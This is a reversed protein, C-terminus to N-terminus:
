RWRAAEDDRGWGDYLSALLMAARRTASADPGLAAACREHHSRALPEAEEFRRRAVLCHVVGAESQLVRYDTADLCARYIALSSRYEAEAGEPDGRLVLVRARATITDAVDPHGDGLAARRRAGVDALIEEAEDLRGLDGLVRGLNHRCTLTNPHHAPFARAYVELAARYEAEAEALEGKGERARALNNLVTAFLVLNEGGHVDRVIRLAESLREIAADHDLLTRHVVGLSILEAAIELSEEGYIRRAFETAAEFRSQADELRGRTWALAALGELARFASISDRGLGESAALADQLAQEAADHDGASMLQTGLNYLTAAIASADYEEVDRALRLCERFADAAEAYAGRGYLLAGRASWLPFMLKSRVEPNEAVVREVAEICAAAEDLQGFDVLGKVMQLLLTGRSHATEPVAPTADLAARYHPFADAHRGLGRFSRGLVQHWAARVDPRDPLKEAIRTSALELLEPATLERGFPNVEPNAADFTGVMLDVVAKAIGSQKEAEERQTHEARRADEARLFLVVSVVLGAALALVTATLERHRRAFKGLRYVRSPPRAAIPRHELYRRLDAALASADAYRRRKDKALAVHVITEVDGALDRRHRGLPIPEEHQVALIGDTLRRGSVDVPRRGTLLEYLIVGIAYVDTQADVEDVAGRAQEPSMYPLTGVVMGERTRLTDIGEQDVLRAVGFDLVKPTGDGTVFVNEPKLDRHVVGRRHAHDVADCVRAVLELRERASLRRAEAFDDIPLGDVLEMAFYPRRGDPSVDWGFEHIQAIGPHHLRGLIEGEREFRTVLEKSDVLTQLVKIAVDRRPKDQTARFVAGVAGAGLLDKVRYRGITRPLGQPLAVGPGDDEAEGLRSDVALMALVEDHLAADDQCAERVLAERDSADVELARLFIEKKLRHRKANM